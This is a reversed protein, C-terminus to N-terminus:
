IPTDDSEAGNILYDNAKDAPRAANEGADDPNDSDPQGDRGGELDTAADEVSGDSRQDLPLGTDDIEPDSDAADAPRNVDSSTGGIGEGRGAVRDVFARSAEDLPGPTRSKLDEAPM